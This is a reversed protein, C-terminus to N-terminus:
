GANIGFGKCFEEAPLAGPDSGSITKVHTRFASWDYPNEKNSSRAAQWTQLQEAINMNANQMVVIDGYPGSCPTFTGGGAPHLLKNVADKLGGLNLVYAVGVALLVLTGEGGSKAM